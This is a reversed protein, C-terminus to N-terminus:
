LFAQCPFFVLFPGRLIIKYSSELYQLRLDHQLSLTGLTELQHDHEELRARVRRIQEDREEHREGRRNHTKAQAKAAM